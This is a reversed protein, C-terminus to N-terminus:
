PLCACLEQFAAKASQSCKEVSAQLQPCDRVQRITEMGENLHGCQLRTFYMLAGQRVHQLAPSELQSFHKMASNAIALDNAALAVRAVIVGSDGRPALKSFSVFWTRTRMLAEQRQGPRVEVEIQQPSGESSALIVVVAWSVSPICM